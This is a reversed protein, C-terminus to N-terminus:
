HGIADVIESEGRCAKLLAPYHLGMFASPTSELENLLDSPKWWKHASAEGQDDLQPEFDEPVVVIFVPGAWQHQGILQQVFYWPNLGLIEDKEPRTFFVEGDSGIVMEPVLGPSKFEERCGRILADLVGEWEKVTEGMAEQTQDYLLDYGKKRINRTQTCIFLGQEDSSWKVIIGVVVLIPNKKADM